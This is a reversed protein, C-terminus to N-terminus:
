EGALAHERPVPTTDASPAPSRGLAVRLLWVTLALEGVVSPVAVVVLFADAYTAYSALVVHAVTDLVYAAGAVTLLWGLLNSTGVSVRLLHGLVVLHLGFCTLGVLWTFDFAQLSVLVQADLQDQAFVGSGAGDALLLAVYLFVLSVGLFVTYILRFWASVLAVDARVPRFLLYLGWAIVVDIVFVALFAVMGLRFTTESGVLDTFTARADGPDLVAGVSLFNAFVALVFIALYGLGAWRAASRLPTRISASM